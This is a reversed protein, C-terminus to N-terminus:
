HIVFLEALGSLVVSLLCAYNSQAYGDDVTLAKM